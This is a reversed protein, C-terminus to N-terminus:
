RLVTSGVGVRGCPIRLAIPALGLNENTHM